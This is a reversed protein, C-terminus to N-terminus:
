RGGKLARRREAKTTQLYDPTERYRAAEPKFPLDGFEVDLMVQHVRPPIIVVRQAGNISELAAATAAIWGVVILAIRRASAESVVENFARDLEDMWAGGDPQQADSM